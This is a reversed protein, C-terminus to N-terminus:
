ANCWSFENWGNQSDMDARTRFVDFQVDVGDLAPVELPSTIVHIGRKTVIAVSGEFIGSSAGVFYRFNHDVHNDSGNAIVVADASDKLIKFLRENRHQM